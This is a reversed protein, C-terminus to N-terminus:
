KYVYCQARDDSRIFLLRDKKKEVEFYNSFVLISKAEKTFNWPFRESVESMVHTM